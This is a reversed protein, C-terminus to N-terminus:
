YIKGVCPQPCLGKVTLFDVTLIEVKRRFTCPNLKIEDSLASGDVPFLKGKAYKTVYKAVYRV